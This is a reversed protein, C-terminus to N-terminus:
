NFHIRWRLIFSISLTFMVFEMIAWIAKFLTLASNQLSGQTTTVDPTCMVTHLHYNTIRIFFGSRVNGVCPQQSSCSSSFLLQRYLTTALSVLSLETSLRHPQEQYTVLFHLSFGETLGPDSLSPKQLLLKVLMQANGSPCGWFLGCHSLQTAHWSSAGSIQHLVAIPM